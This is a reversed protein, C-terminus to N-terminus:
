RSQWFLGDLRYICGFCTCASAVLLAEYANVLLIRLDVDMTDQIPIKPILKLPSHPIPLPAHPMPCPSHPIPCPAHPMPCPSHPIPILLIIVRDVTM